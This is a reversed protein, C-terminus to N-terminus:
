NLAILTTCQYALVWADFIHYTYIYEQRWDVYGPERLFLFCTKRTETKPFSSFPTYCKGVARTGM